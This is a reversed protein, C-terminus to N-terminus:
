TSSEGTTTGNIVVAYNQGLVAVDPTARGGSPYMSSPPLTQSAWRLYTSAAAQQYSPMAFRRSFGGGSGFSDVAAEPGGVASQLRTAGVATVWPSSAPWSPFLQECSTWFGFGCGSGSDGSSVIVSVGM